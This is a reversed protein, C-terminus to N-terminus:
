RRRTRPRKLGKLEGAIVGGAARSIQVWNWQAKKRLVWGIVVMTTLYLLIISVDLLTLKM